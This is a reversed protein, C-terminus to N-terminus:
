RGEKRRLTLLLTLAGASALVVLSPTAMSGGCGSAKFKYLLDLYQVEQYNDGNKVFCKHCESCEYHEKVGESEKTADIQEIHVYNHPTKATAIIKNQANFRLDDFRVSYSIQGERSCSAVRVVVEDAKKVEFIEKDCHECKISARCEYGGDVETWTYTPALYEHGTANIIINELTVTCEADGYYVGPENACTWHEVYGDNECTPDLADHHTLVHPKKTIAWDILENEGNEDTFHKHCNECYYCEVHGLEHCSSDQYDLHIIHHNFKPIIADPIQERGEPDAFYYGPYVPSYWYGVNGDETCTPEKADMYMYYIAYVVTIEVDAQVELSTITMGDKYVTFTAGDLEFIDFSLMTGALVSYTEEPKDLGEFRVTVKYHLPTPVFRSYLHMDGQVVDNEFDWKAGEFYWGDFVYDYEGERYTAPTQPPVLKSGVPVEIPEADDYYIKATSTKGHVNITIIKTYTDYGNAQLTITLTWTGANYKGDTVAGDEYEYSINSSNISDDYLDIATIIGLFNYVPDGEMFDYHSIGGYNIIPHYQELEKYYDICLCGSTEIAWVDSSTAQSKNYSANIVVFHNFAIKVNVMTENVSYEIEFLYDTNPAIVLGYLEQVLANDHGTDIVQILGYGPYFAILSKYFGNLNLANNTTLDIDGTNITFALKIGDNPLGVFLPHATTGITHPFEVNPGLYDDINNPEEIKYSESNSVIWVGAVFKLTVEPLAVDIFEAGDEIHLTPVLYNKTMLLVEKPYCVYFYAYGHDYGVKTTPFKENVKYIPLGNITLKQGIDYTSKARNTANPNHDNSLYDVGHEGFSLILYKYDGGDRNNWGPAIGTFTMKPKPIFETYTVVAASAYERVGSLKSLSDDKEVYKIKTGGNVCYNYSPFECGSLVKIYQYTCDGRITDVNRRIGLRFTGDKFFYDVNNPHAITSFPLYTVNDTSIQIYTLFNYDNINFYPANGVYLHDNTMTGYDNTSLKFFLYADTADFMFTCSTPLAKTDITQWEDDAKAEMANANKNYLSGLTFVSLFLTTIAILKNKRKM